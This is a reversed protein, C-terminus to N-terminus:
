RNIIENYLQQLRRRLHLVAYRKRSLLTNQNEGTIEMMQQYSLDEIEHMLFVQRQEEPLENLAAELTEWFASRLFEMEPHGSDDKLISRFDDNLFEDEDGGPAMDDMLAPKQKRYLDTIKNRAVTFLWSGANEITDLDVVRTLQYWVDQMIDEADEDTKVRRRIFSQLRGGFQNVISGITNRSKDSMPPSIGLLHTM